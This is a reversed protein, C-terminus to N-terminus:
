ASHESSKTPLRTPGIASPPGAPGIPGSITKVKKLAPGRDDNESDLDEGDLDNTSGNKNLNLTGGYLDKQNRVAPPQAGSARAQARKAEQAKEEHYKRLFLMKAKPTMKKLKESIAALNSKPVFTSEVHEELKPGGAPLRSKMTEVTISSGENTTVQVHYARTSAGFKIVGSGVSTFRDPTIKTSNIRTGHSSKLDVLYVKSNDRRIMLAAHRRSISPHDLVYDVMSKVKGFVFCKTNIPVSEVKKDDKYVHLTYFINPPLGCWDPVKLPNGEASM